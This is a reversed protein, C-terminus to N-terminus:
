CRLCDSFDAVTVRKVGQLDYFLLVYCFLLVLLIAALPCLGQIAPTENRDAIFRFSFHLDGLPAHHLKSKSTRGPPHIRGFALVFSKLDSHFGRATSRYQPDVAPQMVIGPLTVKM